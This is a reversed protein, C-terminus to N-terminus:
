IVDIVAPTSLELTGAGFGVGQYLVKGMWGPPIAVMPFSGYGSTVPMWSTIGPAYLDPFCSPSFPMAPVSSPVTPSVIEILILSVTFPNHYDIMNAGLPAGLPFVPMVHQQPELVHRCGRSSALANVFSAAGVTLSAPRIGLQPGMTMAGCPAGAPGCPTNHISGGGSTELLSAGTMHECSYVLNPVLLSIGPCPSVVTSPGALDIELSKTDGVTTVCAGFRDAVLANATMMDMQAESYAVLASSPATSAITLNPAYSTFGPPLCLVDGDRILTPGCATVALVDTDISFFVGYNPQFAIADINIPYSPPLGLAQNVQEQRLFYQIQGEAGGIKVIRGVDGPRLGPGGSIATGMAANPSFYISRQTDGGTPSAWSAISVLADIRDLVNPHFFLGDADEDGAMVQTCTRPLWKEASLMCASNFELTHIENPRLTSLATGGSGSASAEPQSYTTMYSPLQASIATTLTAASLLASSLLHM